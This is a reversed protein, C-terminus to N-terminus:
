WLGIERKPSNFSNLQIERHCVLWCLLILKEHVLDGQLSSSPVVSMRRLVSTGCKLPEKLVKQVSLPAFSWWAISIDLCVYCYSKSNSTNVTCFLAQTRDYHVSLLFSELLNVDPDLWIGAINPFVTDKLRWIQSMVPYQKLLALFGHYHPVPVSDSTKFLPIMFM